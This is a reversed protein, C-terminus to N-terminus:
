FDWLQEVEYFPNGECVNLIFVLVLIKSCNIWFAPLCKGASVFVPMAEHAAIHWNTWRPAILTSPSMVSSPAELFWLAPGSTVPHHVDPLLLCYHCLPKHIKLKCWSLHVQSAWPCTSGWEKSLELWTSLNCSICHIWVLFLASKYALLSLLAM